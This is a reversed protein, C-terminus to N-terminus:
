RTMRRPPGSLRLRLKKGAASTIDRTRRLGATIFAARLEWIMQYIGSRPKGTMLCIEAVSLECLLGALRQLRLPLRRMVRRVDLSIHLAMTPDARHWRDLLNDPSDSEPTPIDETFVEQCVRRSRRAILVTAHNRMVGRIFGDSDGRGRDFRPWRRVFDLLLDQRADDADARTFGATLSLLRARLSAYEIANSVVQANM